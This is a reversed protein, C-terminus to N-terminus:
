TGCQSQTELLNLELGVAGGGGGPSVYNLTSKITGKREREEVGTNTIEPIVIM